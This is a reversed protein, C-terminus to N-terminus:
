KKRNTEFVISPNGHADIHGTDLFYVVNESNLIRGAQRVVVSGTLVVTGRALSYIGRSGTATTMAGKKDPMAVFVNGSATLETIENDKINGEASDASFTIKRDREYFKRVTRASIHDVDKSVIDADISYTEFEGLVNGAASYIDKGGNWVVVDAALDDKAKSIKVDGKATLVRSTNDAGVVTASACSFNVVGGDRDKYHGRVNGHIEFSDGGTAGSGADGFVEGDPNTIHVNGTAVVLKANPDYRMSDAVLVAEDAGLVGVACITFLISFIMM